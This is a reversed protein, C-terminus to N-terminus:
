NKIFHALFPLKKDIPIYQFLSSYVGRGMLKAIEPTLTALHVPDLPATTLTELTISMCQMAKGPLEELFREVQCDKATCHHSSNRSLADAVTHQGAKASNHRFVINSRNVCALM